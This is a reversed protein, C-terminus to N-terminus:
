IRIYIICKNKVYIGKRRVYMKVSKQTASMYPGDGFAPGGPTCKADGGRGCSGGAKHGQGSPLLLQLLTQRM